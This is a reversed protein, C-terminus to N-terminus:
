FEASELGHSQLENKVVCKERSIYIHNSPFDSVVQSVSCNHSRKLYTRYYKKGIFLINM